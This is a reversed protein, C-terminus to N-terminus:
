FFEIGTYAKRRARYEEWHEQYYKKDRIAKKRQKPDRREQRIEWDRQRAAEDEERDFSIQGDIEADFAALEALEEPTFPLLASKM